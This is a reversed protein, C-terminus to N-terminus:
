DKPFMIMRDVIGTVSLLELPLLIKINGSEIKNSIQFRTIKHKIPDITIKIKVVDWGVSPEINKDDESTITFSDGWTFGSDYSVKFVYKCNM